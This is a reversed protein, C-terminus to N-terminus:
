PARVALIGEAVKLAIAADPAYGDAGVSRWLEPAINFPNGGVLIPLNECKGRGRVARITDRIAPLDFIM